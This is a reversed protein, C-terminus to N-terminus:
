AADPETATDSCWDAHVRAIRAANAATVWDRRLQISRGLGAAAAIATKTRGALVMEDVRRWTEAAPVRVSAFYPDTGVREVAQTFLTASNTSMIKRATEKSVRQRQGSHLKNLTSRSMHLLKAITRTSVGDDVLRALAAAVADADELVSGAGQRVKLAQNYQLNAGTCADCRCGVFYGSRTGHRRAGIDRKERPRVGSWSWGDIAQLEAARRPELQGRRQQHRVRAVWRGFPFPGLPSDVIQSGVGFTHGHREVHDAVLEIFVDFATEDRRWRWATGAAAEVEDRVAPPLTGAAYRYRWSRVAMGLPEGLEVHEAPVEISGEFSRYRALLDVMAADDPEIVSWSWGPLQDFREVLPTPLLGRRYTVRVWAALVGVSHRWGNVVLASQGHLSGTALAAPRAAAAADALRGAFEHADSYGSVWWWGALQELADVRDVQLLGNIRARRQASCWAALRRDDRHLTQWGTATVQIAVRRYWDWWTDTCADVSLTELQTAVAPDFNFVVRGDDGAARSLTPVQPNDLHAAFEADIDRLSRLTSWLCAFAGSRLAGDVDTEDREVAVPVIVYGHQKGPATRLVRGLAQVVDVKSTKDSTFVVADLAAVDVGETLCDVHCVIEVTNGDAGDLDAIIQARKTPNLKAHVVQARVARGDDLAGADTFARTLREAIRVRSTFVMITSLHHEAAASRVAAVAGAEDGGGSCVLVKWDCLLGRNRADALSLDFVRPGFVAEDDMSVTGRVPIWGPRGHSCTTATATMFLHRDADVARHAATFREDPNGALRHAEDHVALDFRAGGRTRRQATALVEASHYTCVVLDVTGDAGRGFRSLAAAVLDANCSAAKTTLGAEVLGAETGVVVVECLQEGLHHRFASVSQRILALTPVFLVVRGGTRRAVEAAVATKGTGCPMSLMARDGRTFTDCAADAAAVQHDRLVFGAEANV